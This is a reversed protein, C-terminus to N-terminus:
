LTGPELGPRTVLRREHICASTAEGFRRLRSPPGGMTQSRVVAPLGAEARMERPPQGGSPLPM